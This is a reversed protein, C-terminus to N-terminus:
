KGWQMEPFALGIIRGEHQDVLISIPQRDRQRSRRPCPLCLCRIGGGHMASGPHGDGVFGAIWGGWGVCVAIYQKGDLTYTMPSAHHGSGCQFHWLIM